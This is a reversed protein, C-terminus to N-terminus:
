YGVLIGSYGEEDYYHVSPALLKQDELNALHVVLLLGLSLLLLVLHLDDVLRVIGPPPQVEAHPDHLVLLLVSLKINM